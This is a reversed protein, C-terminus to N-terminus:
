DAPENLENVPVRVGANTPASMPTSELSVIIPATVGSRKMPIAMKTTANMIRQKTAMGSGLRLFPLLFTFYECEGQFKRWM